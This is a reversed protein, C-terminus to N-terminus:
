IKKVAQPLQMEMKLKKAEDPELAVKGDYLDPAIVMYGLEAVRLAVDKIHDNLGWWEQIVVVGGKIPIDPKVLYGQASHGNIKYSVLDAKM